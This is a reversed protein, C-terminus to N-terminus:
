IWNLAEGKRGMKRPRTPLPDMAKGKVEGVEEVARGWKGAAV